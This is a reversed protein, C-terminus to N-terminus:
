DNYNELMNKLTEDISYARIDGVLSHLRQTSGSLREIENARVFLPNVAVEIKHGTLRKMFEIVELLSTLNGSCVNVIDSSIGSKLLREYVDVVMRIDNFERYIHLNGLEIVPKKEVFHQVIKPILFHAPQGPGTYNFPRTIIIDLQEFFTRALLETGLKSIGYHNVPVSRMNEDLVSANQNGYVAASSAIVVKQPKHKLAALAKLLNETGLINVKYFLESNNEGVFSIAALHIVYSPLLRQVVANVEDEDLLDCQILHADNTTSFCTGYVDYGLAELHRRLHRGTFGKAGTILISKSPSVSKM